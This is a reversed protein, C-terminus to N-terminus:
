GNTATTERQCMGKTSAAVAWFRRVLTHVCRLQTSSNQHVSAGLRSSGLAFLDAEVDSIRVCRWMYSKMNKRQLSAPCTFRGGHETGACNKTFAQNEGMKCSPMFM